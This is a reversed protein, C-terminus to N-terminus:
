QVDILDVVFVLTENPKILPPFGQKGYGLKPPIILERRGGVKMGEIGQEWGPIVRGEGLTFEIPTRGAAYSSDFEKGTSYSVGTYDVKVPSNAKAVAGDGVEIDRTKLESPPAGSPVEVKPADKREGTAADSDAETQTADTETTDTQATTDGSKASDDSDDDGCGAATLALAALGCAILHRTRM